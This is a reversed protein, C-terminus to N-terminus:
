CQFLFGHFGKLFITNQNNQVNGVAAGGYQLDFLEWSAQCHSHFHQLWLGGLSGTHQPYDSAARQWDGSRCLSSIYNAREATHVALQDILSWSLVSFFNM